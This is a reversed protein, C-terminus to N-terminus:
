QWIIRVLYLSNDSGYDECGAPQMWEAVTVWTENPSAEIVGFNGLRAGREPVLIIESDRIVCCRDPDVQAMLLPARHRFVHDNALGRRTYVLYLQDGHTVWHQQTNYSGLDAGDDFTWQRPTDFHLGDRSTAVYGAHDHRLTLFFRGGLRTLSPEYLGRPEPLSLPRGLESVTLRTGDFACRAVTTRYMRSEAPACSLPLLIEGDPLDCRQVSNSVAHWFQPQDPLNLLQPTSWECTAPDCTAYATQAGIGGPKTHSPGKAGDRYWVQVGHALMVGTAAHWAPKLDNICHEFPRGDIRTRGMGPVPLDASWTAGWDSSYRCLAGAFVDSGSVDLQQTTVIAHGNPTTAPWPNVLCSLGDYGSRITQIDLSYPPM